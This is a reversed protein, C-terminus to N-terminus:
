SEGEEDPCDPCYDYISDSDAPAGNDILGTDECTPCKM